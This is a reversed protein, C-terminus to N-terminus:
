KLMARGVTVLATLGSNTAQQLTLRVRLAIEPIDNLWRSLVTSANEATIHGGYFKYVLNIIEEDLNAEYQLDDSMGTVIKNIFETTVNGRKAVAIYVTTYLDLPKM